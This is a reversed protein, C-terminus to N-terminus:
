YYRVRCKKRQFTTTSVGNTILPVKLSGCRVKPKFNGSIYDGLRWRMRLNFKVNIDFVGASKQKNFEAIENNNLLVLQQGQFVLGHEDTTKKKLLGVYTLVKTTFRVDEYYARGDINDQYIGLKKNPNRITFNLALNYHLKNDATLNFETLKAETIHFKMM